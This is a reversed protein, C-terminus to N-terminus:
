TGHEIIGIVALMAEVNEGPKDRRFSFYKERECFTCSPDMSVQDPPLGAFLLTNRCAGPLDVFYRFLLRHRVEPPFLRFVERGVEFHCPGICPGVHALLDGPESGLAGKMSAVTNEIIGQTLGRWGAHAIGIARKKRDAVFVPACDAFTIGLAVGRDASILADVDQIYVNQQGGPFEASEKAIRKLDERRLGSVVGVQGQHVVYPTFLPPALGIGSLFTLRRREREQREEGLTEPSIRMNGDTRESVAAILWDLQEWVKIM